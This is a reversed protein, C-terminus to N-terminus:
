VKGKSHKSINLVIGMEALLVMLATGGSSFFPLTVGTNPISSTVVAINLMAQIGIQAMIGVVTLMGFVDPANLAIKIGRFILVAFLAIIFVAGVFGLEECIIAFIFDNYPEPLYTYKQVSQGLGLGFLGGSGIAYLGQVVQYGTLKTDAFPNTFNLLRARRVNDTMVYLFGLPVVVAGGGAVWKMNLGGVIMVVVAIGCIIITGSLHTELMLLVATVGIWFLYFGLGKINSMDHRKSEIEAAFFMAIAVKMLESPQFETVILNIWRRSGNHEVGIVPLFVMILLVICLIMLKGTYKKYRRYDIRSIFIMAAFGICAFMLQKLFFHYSNGFKRNAAPASASLLMILGTCVIIIIITLFTYDIQGIKRKKEESKKKLGTREGTKPKRTVAGSRKVKRKDM